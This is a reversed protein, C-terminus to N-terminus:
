IEIVSKKQKNFIKAIWGAKKNNNEVPMENPIDTSTMNKDEDQYRHPNLKKDEAEMLEALKEKGPWQYYGENQGNVAIATDILIVMTKDDHNVNGPPINTINNKLEEDLEEQSLREWFRNYLYYALLENDLSYQQDKLYPNVLMEWIGDTVVLFSRVKHPFKKFVWKDKFCLPDVIGDVNHEIQTVREFIGDERLAIIGSDGAQGYHLEGNFFVALCLTTDVDDLEYELERAKREIHFQAEEFSQKITALIYEESSDKTIKEACYNVALKTAEKAAIDSHCSSSLGDAVAAIVVGDKELVENWDQCDTGKLKHSEGQISVGCKILM